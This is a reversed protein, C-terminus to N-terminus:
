LLFNSEMALNDRLYDFGLESNTVYTIDCLYNQRREESDPAGELYLVVVERKAHADVEIYCTGDILIDPTSVPILLRDRSHIGHDSMMNNLRKIDM